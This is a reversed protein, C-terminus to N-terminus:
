KTGVLSWRSTETSWIALQFIIILNIHLGAIGVFPFYRHHTGAVVIPAVLYNVELTVSGIGLYEVAVKRTLYEATWKCSVALSLPSERDLLHLTVEETSNAVDDTKDDQCSVSM